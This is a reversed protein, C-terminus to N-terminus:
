VMQSKDNRRKVESLIYAIPNAPSMELVYECLSEMKSSNRKFLVFLVSQDRRKKIHFDKIYKLALEQWRHVTSNRKIKYDKFNLKKM